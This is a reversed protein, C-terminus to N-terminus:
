TQEAIIRDIAEASTEKLNVPKHGFFPSASLKFVPVKQNKGKGLKREIKKIESLPLKTLIEIVTKYPLKVIIEKPM